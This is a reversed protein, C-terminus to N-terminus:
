DDCGKGFQDTVCQIVEPEQTSVTYILWGAFVTAWIAAGAILAFVCGRAANLGDTAYIYEEGDRQSM